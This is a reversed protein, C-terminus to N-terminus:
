TEKALSDIVLWPVLWFAVPLWALRCAESLRVAPLAAIFAVVVGTAIRGAALYDALSGVPAMGVLVLANAGVLVVGPTLARAAYAVVAVALVAPVVVSLLLLALEEDDQWAAVYNAFPFLSLQRAGDDLWVGYVAALVVRVAVYPLLSVGVLLAAARWRRPQGLGLAVCAALAVPFVLSTERAVGALGFLLAAVLPREVGARDLALLGGAVLAYALPESLDHGVALYMGPYGAFLLAWWSSAGRRRLLSALALTGLAIAALNVLLLTAPVLGADGFALV